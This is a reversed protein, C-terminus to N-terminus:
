DKRSHDFGCQYNQKWVASRTAWLQHESATMWHESRTYPQKCEQLWWLFTTTPKVSPKRGIKVIYSPQGPRGESSPGNVECMQGLSLVATPEKLLQVEICMDLDYVYGAAEETTHTTGYATMIVSSDKSKRVTEQKEPTLITKRM